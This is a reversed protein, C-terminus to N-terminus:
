YAYGHSEHILILCSYPPVSPDGEFPGAATQRWRELYINNGNYCYKNEKGPFPRGRAALDFKDSGTELPPPPSFPSEPQLQPPSSIQLTVSHQPVHGEGCPSGHQIGRRGAERLPLLSCRPRFRNGRGAAFSLAIWQLIGFLSKPPIRLLLPHITIICRSSVLLLWRHIGFQIAEQHQTCVDWSIFCTLPVIPVAAISYFVWKCKSPPPPDTITLEGGGDSSSTNEERVESSIRSTSFHHQHPEISPSM